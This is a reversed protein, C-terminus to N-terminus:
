QQNVGSETKARGRQTHSRLHPKTVVVTAQNDCGVPPVISAIALLVTARAVVRRAEALMASNAQAISLTARHETRHGTGCTAILGKRHTSDTGPNRKHGGLLPKARTPRLTAQSDRTDLGIRKLTQQTTRRIGQLPHHETKSGIHHFTPAEGTQKRQYCVRDNQGQCAKARAFSRLASSSISSTM